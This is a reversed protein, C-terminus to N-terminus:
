VSPSKQQCDGREAQEEQERKLIESGVHRVFFYLGGCVATSFILVGITNLLMTMKLSGGLTKGVKVDNYSVCYRM